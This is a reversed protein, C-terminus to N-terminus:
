KRNKRRSKKAMRRKKKKKTKKKRILKVDDYMSQNLDPEFDYPENNIENPRNFDDFSFNSSGFSLEDLITM